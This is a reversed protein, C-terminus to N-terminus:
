EGQVGKCRRVDRVGGGVGGWVPTEVESRKEAKSAHITV